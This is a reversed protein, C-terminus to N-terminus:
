GSIGSMGRQTQTLGARAHSERVFSDSVAIAGLTVRETRSESRQKVGTAQARRAIETGVELEHVLVREASRAESVTIESRSKFLYAPVSSLDSRVQTGCSEDIEELLRDDRRAVTGVDQPPDLVMEVDDRHNRRAEGVVLRTARSERGDRAQVVSVEAGRDDQAREAEPRPEALTLLRVTDVRRSTEVLGDRDLDGVVAVRALKLGRLRGGRRDSVRRVTGLPRHGRNFVDTAVPLVRQVQEVEQGSGEVVM